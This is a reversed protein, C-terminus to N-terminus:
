YQRMVKIRSVLQNQKNRTFSNLKVTHYITKENKISCNSAAQNVLSPLIHVLASSVILISRAIPMVTAKMAAVPAFLMIVARTRAMAMNKATLVAYHIQFIHSWQFTYICVKLRNQCYQSTSLLSLLTQQYPRGM